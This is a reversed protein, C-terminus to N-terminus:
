GASGVLVRHDYNFNIVAYMAIMAHRHVRSKIIESPYAFESGERASYNAIQPM